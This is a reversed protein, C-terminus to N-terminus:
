CRLITNFPASRKKRVLLWSGFEVRSYATLPLTPLPILPLNTMSGDTLRTYLLRTYEVPFSVHPACLGFDTPLYM